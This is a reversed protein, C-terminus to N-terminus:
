LTNVAMVQAVTMKDTGDVCSGHCALLVTTLVPNDDTYPTMHRRGGDACNHSDAYGLNSRRAKPV